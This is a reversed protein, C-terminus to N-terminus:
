GLAAFASESRNPNSPQRRMRGSFIRGLKILPDEILHYAAFSLASTVITSLLLALFPNSTVASAIDIGARHCLYIGYSYKAVTSAARQVLRNDVERVNPLLAAVALCILWGFLFINPISNGTFLACMVIISIPLASWHLRPNYGSTFVVAGALFCPVFAIPATPLGILAALTIALSSTAFALYAGRQKFRVCYIALAPLVLYMQIEFPLTWLGLPVSIAGNLNQILFLSSWFSKASPGHALYLDSLSYACCAIISLPYIRFVRRIQFAAWGDNRREISRLLVTSTHVFFLLVGLRGISEFDQSKFYLPAVHCFYVCLVAFSRLLDLNSSDKM